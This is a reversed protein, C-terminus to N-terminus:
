HTGTTENPEETKAIDRKSMPDPKNRKNCNIWWFPCTWHEFGDNVELFICEDPFLGHLKRLRRLMRWRNTVISCKGGDSITIVTLHEM